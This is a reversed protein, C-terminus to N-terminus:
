FSHSLMLRTRRWNLGPPPHLHFMGSKKIPTSPHFWLWAVAWWANFDGPFRTGDYWPSGSTELGPGLLSSLCCSLWEKYNPRTITLWAGGAIWDLARIGHPRAGTHHSLVPHTPRLCCSDSHNTAQSSLCIQLPTPPSSHAPMIPWCVLSNGPGSNHGFDLRQDWARFCSLSGTDCFMEIVRIVAPLKILALPRPRWTPDCLHSRLDTSGCLSHWNPHVACGGPVM